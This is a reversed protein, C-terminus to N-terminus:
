GRPRHACIELRQSPLVRESHVKAERVIRGSADVISVSGWELLADIAAYHEM